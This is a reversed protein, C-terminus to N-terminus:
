SKMLAGILPMDIYRGQIKAWEDRAERGLRNAYQEFAQHLIGIVVLRGPSRSAAEALEQFFYIDKTEGAARELYKGLEDIILLVGDRPRAAAEQTLRAILDRGNRVESRPRGRKEARQRRAHELATGIDVIPDGRRGVVPVVLWGARSPQFGDLLQKATQSGLASIAAARVEGKRGLLGALTISLSSKGGGYPGTWTFARQKTTTIQKAISLLADAASRQCVFGQLADARALDTDLRVSRQFRRAIAVHNALM